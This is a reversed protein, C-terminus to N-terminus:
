IKQNIYKELLEMLVKGSATISFEKIAITRLEQVPFAEKKLAENLIHFFDESNNALWGTTKDITEQFGMCNYALVPTGCSISEIPVLGFQEWKQPCITLKSRSYMNALEIDTLNSNYLISKNGESNIKSAMKANGFLNAFYGNQVVSAVIKKVFDPKADGLNSGLYITIEKAKEGSPQFVDTDISPYVIGSVEVNYLSHLFTATIKSNAIVLDFTKLLKSYRRSLFSFPLFKLPKFVLKQRFTLLTQDFCDAISHSGFLIQVYSITKVNTATKIEQVLKLRKLDDDTFVFEPKIRVTQQIMNKKNSCVIVKFGYKQLHESFPQSCNLLLFTFHYKGELAKAFNVFPRVVGEHLKQQDTVVFAINV